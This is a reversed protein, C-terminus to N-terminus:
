FPEARTVDTATISGTGTYTILQSLFPIKFPLPYAVQILINTNDGYATGIFYANNFSGSSSLTAPTLSAFGSALPSAQVSYTLNTTCGNGLLGFEGCVSNVFGSASQAALGDIQINRSTARVADDLTLQYFGDLGAGFIAFLLLLFTPGLIAFEITELGRKDNAFFALRSCAKDNLMKHLWSLMILGRINAKVLTFKIRHCLDYM